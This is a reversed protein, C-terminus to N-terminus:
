GPGGFRCGAEPSVSFGTGEPSRRDEGLWSQICNWPTQWRVGMESIPFNFALTMSEYCLLSCILWPQLALFLRGQSCALVVQCFCFTLWTLLRIDHAFLVPAVLSNLVVGQKM